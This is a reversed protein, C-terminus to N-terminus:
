PGERSIVGELVKERAPTIREAGDRTFLTLGRLPRPSAPLLLSAVYGVLVCSLVGIIAYAFSNVPLLLWVLFVGVASAAAGVLAGPGTARRTFIGLVFLGSLAGGFLGLVTIFTGYISEIQVAAVLLAIATGAIGVVVTVLRALRLCEGDTAGPRLRRHFDTVYATAISNLSSALTSQAAAFIGAVVLGALGVPLERVIFLPFVADAPLGQEWRNAHQHYFAFLATGILFFLASSPLCMLANTWIARAATAQDRTTLYRQVVDQSATYPLMQTFIGGILIVWGSAIFPNFSWDVQEFFKGNVRALDVIGGWGGDVRAVILALSLLAGGLLIFTQAVDTWVVAEIGGLVTYIVCLLGMFVICVYVNFDSVTALALAPLYLVIAIRGAQFFMFLISGLLRAALNFRKELYEYASTVNLTRYFPLYVFIVLPTILLYSNGLFMAWGEKFSAAPVAMFTISSLMTAYISLGAAWWPIRQGGRFFDDTSRNRRAFFAGLAVMALLYLVLAAYNVWGFRVRQAPADADAGLATGTLALCCLAVVAFKKM